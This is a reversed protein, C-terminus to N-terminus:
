RTATGPTRHTHTSPDTPSRLGCVVYFGALLVLDVPRVGRDWLLGVAAVLGLPLVTAAAIGALQSPVSTRERVTMIRTM